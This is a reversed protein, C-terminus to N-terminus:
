ANRSPMLVSCSNGILMNITQANVMEHQIYFIISSGAHDDLIDSSLLAFVINWKM